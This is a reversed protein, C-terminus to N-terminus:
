YLQCGDGIKNKLHSYLLKSTILNLLTRSLTLIIISPRMDHFFIDESVKYFNVWLNYSLPLRIITVTISSLICLLSLYKHTRRYVGLFIINISSSIRMLFTTFTVLDGTFMRIISTILLIFFGYLEGFLMSAVFSPVDSFDPKFFSIFPLKFNAVYSLCISMASLISITAIKKTNNKM